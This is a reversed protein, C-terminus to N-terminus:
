IIYNCTRIRPNFRFSYVTRGCQIKLDDIIEKNERMEVLTGFKSESDRIFFNNKKFFIESHGRSVSIDDLIIDCQHGRGLKVCKTEDTTVM